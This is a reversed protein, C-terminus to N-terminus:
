SKYGNIRGLTKIMENHQDQLQKHHANFSEHEQRVRHCFEKMDKCLSDLKEVTKNIFMEGLMVLKKILWALLLFAGVGLGGEKLIQWLTVEM